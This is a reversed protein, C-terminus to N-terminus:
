KRIKKNTAIFTTRDTIKQSGHGRGHGGHDSTIIILWDEDAYEKRVKIHEILEAAYRDASVLSLVYKPNSNSFGTSHGMADPFENIGFIIDTGNDIAEIMKDQLQNEDVIHSFEVPLNNKKSYAIENKYTVTFHDPWISAFVSSLGKEAGELLVTPVSDKKTEHHVVGNVNGWCGTLISCWGQQTSTSQHTEKRDKDGGAYSLYLGGEKKLGAVASFKEKVFKENDTALFALTDARAGDFGYILVRKKKESNNKYLHERVMDAVITQPYAKKFSNDFIGSSQVFNIYKKDQLM